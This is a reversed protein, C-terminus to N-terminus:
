LSGASDDMQQWRGEHPSICVCHTVERTAKGSHDFGYLTFTWEQHSDEEVSVDCQLADVNLRKRGLGRPGERAAAREAGEPSLLQGLGERGEAKEPPLVVELPGQDERFHGEKPDGSPLEHEPSSNLGADDLLQSQDGTRFWSGPWTAEVDKMPLLAPICSRNKGHVHELPAVGRFLAPSLHLFINAMFGLEIVLEEPWTNGLTLFSGSREESVGDGASSSGPEWAGRQLRVAQEGMPQGMIEALDSAVTRTGVRGVLTSRHRTGLLVSWFDQIVKLSALCVHQSNTIDQTRWKTKNPHLTARPKGAERLLAALHGVHACFVAHISMEPSCGGGGGGKPQPSGDATIEAAVCVNAATGLRVLAASRTCSQNLVPWVGVRGLHLPEEGQGHPWPRALAQGQSRSPGDWALTITTVMGDQRLSPGAARFSNAHLKALLNLDSPQRRSTM